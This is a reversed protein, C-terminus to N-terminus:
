FGVQRFLIAGERVTMQPLLLERGTVKGGFADQFLCEREVVRFVALDAPAGPDLSIKEPEGLFAAPAATVAHFVKEWPMGLCHLKAMVHPLSHVPQRYRTFVTLDTSIVDPLFGAAIASGAVRLDLNGRGHCADFIVGLERAEWLERRVKGTKDLITEGFGQYTHCFVDGSRLMGALEGIPLVSDNIHVVLPKGVVAAMDLGAQITERGREPPDIYGRSARTKLGVLRDPYREFLRRVEGPQYYRPDSDEIHVLSTMGAPSVHLCARLDVASHLMENQFFAEFNACGTTGADVATTVGGPLCVPDPDVGTDSCSQAAHLHMDILGRTVICGSADVVETDEPLGSPDTLRGERCALDRRVFANEAPDYVTGNRIIIPREM